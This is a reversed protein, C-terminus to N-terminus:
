WYANAFKFNMQNWFQFKIKYKKKTEAMVRKRSSNFLRWDPRSDFRLWITIKEVLSIRAQMLLLIYFEVNSKKVNDGNKIKALSSIQRCPTSLKVNVSCDPFYISFDKHTKLLFSYDLIAWGKM